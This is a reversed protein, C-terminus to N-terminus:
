IIGKSRLVAGITFFVSAIVAAFSFLTALLWFVMRAKDRRTHPGDIEFDTPNPLLDRKPPKTSRIETNEAM